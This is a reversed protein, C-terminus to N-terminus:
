AWFRAKKKELMDTLKLQNVKAAVIFDNLTLGGAATDVLPRLSRVHACVHGLRLVGWAQPFGASCLQVSARGGAAVCTTGDRRAGTHAPSAQVAGLSRPWVREDAICVYVCARGVASETSLEATISLGDPGLQASMPHGESASVGSILDLLQQAAAADKGKWSQQICSHGAKNQLVRWGQAQQRLLEQEAPMLLIPVGSEACRKSTLGIFQGISDPPKVIHNTDYNGLTKESFNSGIEGATPDRAGFDGEGKRGFAPEASNCVTRRRQVKRPVHASGTGQRSSDQSIPMRFLSQSQPHQAALAPVSGPFPPSPEVQGLLDAVAESKVQQQLALLARSVHFFSPRRSWDEQLCANALAVYEPPCGPPFALLDASFVPHPRAMPRHAQLSSGATFTDSTASVPQLKTDLTQPIGPRPSAHQGASATEEPMSGLPESHDQSYLEYDPAPQRRILKHTPVGHYTELMLVGFSYVDALKTVKGFTSVEPAVYGYTGQHRNSVHTQHEAMKISLGFDAIKASTGYLAGPMSKLLINNATLDGHIIGKSHIHSMGCAVDILTCLIKHVSPTREAIGDMYAAREIADKLTGIDCYEQIIFLKWDICNTDEVTAWNHQHESSGTANAGHSMASNHGLASMPRIDYSYTSIVNPHVLSTTIAAELMSRHRRRGEAGFSHAQFVLTKVAVTLGKWEGKYVVGGGGSGLVDSIIVSQAKVEMQMASMLAQLEEPPSTGDGFESPPQDFSDISHQAEESIDWHEESAKIVVGASDPSVQAFCAVSSNISSASGGHGAEERMNTNSFMTRLLQGGTPGDLSLSGARRQQPLQIQQQQQQGPQQSVVPSGLVQAESGNQNSNASTAGSGSGIYSQLNRLELNFNQQMMQPSLLRPPTRGGAAGHLFGSQMVAQRNNSSSSSNGFKRVMSSQVPAQAGPPLGAAHLAANSRNSGGSGGGTGGGVTRSGLGSGGGGALVDPSTLSSTMLLQDYQAKLQSYATATEPASQSASHDANVEDSGLFSSVRSSTNNLLQEPTCLGSGLLMSGQGGWSQRGGGPDAGDYTGGSLLIEGFMRNNQKQPRGVSRGSVSRENDPAQSLSSAGSHHVSRALSEVSLSHPLNRSSFHMLLAGFLMAMLAMACSTVVQRHSSDPEGLILPIADELVWDLLGAKAAQSPDLDLDHVLTPFPLGARSLAGVDELTVDSGHYIRPAAMHAFRMHLSSGSPGESVQCQRMVQCRRLWDATFLEAGSRLTGQALGRGARVVRALLRVEATPLAVTVQHLSIVPDLRDSTFAWLLSTMNHLPQLSADGEAYAVAAAALAPDLAAGSAMPPHRQTSREQTGTGTLMEQGGPGANMIVINRIQLHASGILHFIGALGALDLVVMPHSPNGTLTINRTIVIPLQLSDRSSATCSQNGQSRGSIDHKGIGLCSLSAALLDALSINSVMIYVPVQPDRLASVLEEATAVPRVSSLPVYPDESLRMLGADKLLLPTRQATYAWTSNRWSVGFGFRHTYFASDSTGSHIELVEAVLDKTWKAAERMHSLPSMAHNIWHSVYDFVDRNVILTSNTLTFYERSGRRRPFSCFWMLGQLLSSPMHATPGVPLNTISVHQMNLWGSETINFLLPRLHIDVETYAAPLGSVTVRSSIAIGDEPWHSADGWTINSTLLVWVNPSHHQLMTMARLLSTVSVERLVLHSNSALQVEFPLLLDQQTLPRDEGLSAGLLLLDPGLTLTAGAHVRVGARPLRLQRDSFTAKYRIDSPLLAAGDSAVSPSHLAASRALVLIFCFGYFFPHAM